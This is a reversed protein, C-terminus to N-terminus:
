AAKAPMVLETGAELLGGPTRIDNLSRVQREREEAEAGGYTRAVLALLSTPSGLKLIFVHPTESTASIASDRFAAGFMITARYAAFLELDDELLSALTSLQNSVAAVDVLIERATIDPNESWAEPLLAAASVFTPELGAAEMDADFDVSELEANLEDARAAVADIGASPITGRGPQLTAVIPQNAIFEAMANTINSDEDIDYTFESVKAFYGGDIPHTFVEEAGDDVQAKFKLFRDLPTDSEGPFDDFLLACKTRRPAAGRDSVPHEDGAALEHVVQTRSNDTSITSCFLRVNGWSVEFFDAAAV